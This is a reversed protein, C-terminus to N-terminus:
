LRSSWIDFGWFRLHTRVIKGLVRGRDVDLYVTSSRQETGVGTQLSSNTSSSHTKVLVRIRQTDMNSFDFKIDSSHGWRIEKNLRFNMKVNQVGPLRVNPISRPRFFGMHVQTSNQVHFNRLRVDETSTQKQQPSSSHISRRNHAFRRIGFNSVARHMGGFLFTRLCSHLDFSM